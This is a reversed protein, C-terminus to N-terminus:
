QQVKSNSAVNKCVNSGFLGRGDLLKKREFVFFDIYFRTCGNRKESRRREKEEVKRSNGVKKQKRLTIKPCLPPLCRGKPGQRSLHRCIEIPVNEFIRSSVPFHQRSDKTGFLNCTKRILDTSTRLCDIGFKGPLRWQLIEKTIPRM